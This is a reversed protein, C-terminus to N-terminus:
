VADRNFSFFSSCPIFGSVTTVRIAVNIAIADALATACVNGAFGTRRTTANAGPPAVSVNERTVAASM